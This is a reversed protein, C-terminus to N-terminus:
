AICTKPNEGAAVTSPITRPTRVSLSSLRESIMAWPLQDM